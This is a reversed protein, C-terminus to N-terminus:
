FTVTYYRPWMDILVYWVFWLLMAGNVIWSYLTNM